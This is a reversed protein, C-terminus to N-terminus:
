RCGEQCVLAVRTLSAEGVAGLALVSLAVAVVAVVAPLTRM